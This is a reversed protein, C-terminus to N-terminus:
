TKTLGICRQSVYLIMSVYKASTNRRLVEAIRSQFAELKGKLVNMNYMSILDQWM